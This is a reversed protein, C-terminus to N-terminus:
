KTVRYGREGPGSKVLGAPKLEDNVARKITAESVHAEKALEARSFWRTEFDTACLRKLVSYVGAARDTLEEAPDNLLNDLYLEAAATVSAFTSADIEGPTLGLRGCWELFSKEDIPPAEDKGYKVLWQDRVAKVGGRALAVRNGAAALAAGDVSPGKLERLLSYCLNLGSFGDDGAREAILETSLPAPWESVLLQGVVNDSADAFRRLRAFADDIQRAVPSQDSSDLRLLLVSLDDGVAEDLHQRCHGRYHDSDERFGEHPYDEAWFFLADYLYGALEATRTTTTAM